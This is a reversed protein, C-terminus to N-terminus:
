LDVAHYACCFASVFPLVVNKANKEYVRGKERKLGDANLLNMIACKSLTTLIIVNYHLIDLLLLICLCPYKFHKSNLSVVVFDGM